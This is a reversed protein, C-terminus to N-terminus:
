AATSELTKKMADTGLQMQQEVLGALDDPLLDAIWVVRAQGAGAEFVQFSANYHSAQWEVVAYALRRRQEDITVIRERVTMGNAFTVLRSDGELKTDVVFQRALRTHIAGVDRYVAWVHDASARVTFEKYISAMYRSM